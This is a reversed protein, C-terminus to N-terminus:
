GIQVRAEGAAECNNNSIRQTLRPPGIFRRREEGLERMVEEAAISVIIKVVFTRAVEGVAFAWFVGAEAEGGGSCWCSM